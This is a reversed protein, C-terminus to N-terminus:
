NGPIGCYVSATACRGRAPHMRVLSLLCWGLLPTIERQQLVDAFFAWPSTARGRIEPVEAHIKALFIERIKVLKPHDYLFMAHPPDAIDTGCFRCLCWERPVILKGREKWRRCEVALSHSSLVM